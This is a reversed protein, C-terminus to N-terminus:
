IREAAQPDKGDHSSRYADIATSFAGVFQDYAKANTKKSIGVQDLTTQVDANAIAQNLFNLKPQAQADPRSVQDWRGLLSNVQGTTLAPRPSGDDNKGPTLWQAIRLKSFGQSDTLSMGLLRQYEEVNEPAEQVPKGTANAKMRELAGARLDPEAATAAWLDPPIQDPSTLNSNMVLRALQNGTAARAANAATEKESVDSVISGRALDHQEPSLGALDLRALRAPCPARLRPQKTAHPM